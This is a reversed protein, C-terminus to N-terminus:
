VVSKVMKPDPKPAIQSSFETKVPSYHHGPAGGHHAGMQPNKSTVFEYYERFFLALINDTVCDDSTLDIDKLRM